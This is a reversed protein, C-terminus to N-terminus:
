WDEETDVIPNLSQQVGIYYLYDVFIDYVGYVEDETPNVGLELLEQHIYAIAEEQDLNFINKTM